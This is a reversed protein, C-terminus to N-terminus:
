VDNTTGPDFPSNPPANQTLRDLLLETATHDGIYVRSIEYTVQGLTIEQYEMHEGGPETQGPYDPHIGNNGM